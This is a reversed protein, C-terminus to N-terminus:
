RTGVTVSNPVSSAGLVGGSRGACVLQMCLHLYCSTQANAAVRPLFNMAAIYFGSSKFICSHREPSRADHYIRIIFGVLHVLKM